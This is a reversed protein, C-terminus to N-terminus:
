QCKFTYKFPTATNAYGVKKTGTADTFYYEIRTLMKDNAVNFFARPWFDIRYRKGGISTLKTKATQECVDIAGGTNDFAKACLYVDDVNNLPTTIVGSDFTFTMIDNDTSKVPEVKSLQPNVLDVLDGTGNKVEFLNSFTFKTYDVDDGRLNEKSSGVYFGLKLVMNEAGLKTTVKVDFDIDENNSFTYASTSRYIIWEFDDVLNPGIGFRKKAAAPWSLGSTAEVETDPIPTMVGNGKPSTFNVTTGARGNWNRPVMIGVLLNTTYTGSAIRPEAGCHLTFTVAENANGSAPVDVSLAKLGCEALFVVTALALILYLFKVDLFRKM